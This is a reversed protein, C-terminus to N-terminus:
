VIGSLYVRKSFEDKYALQLQVANEGKSKSGKPATNICDLGLWVSFITQLGRTVRRLDGSTDEQTNLVGVLSPTSILKKTKNVVRLFEQLSDQIRTRPVVTETDRFSKLRLMEVLKAIERSIALDAKKTEQCALKKLRYDLIHDSSRRCMNYAHYLINKHEVDAICDDFLLAQDELTVLRPSALVINNVFLYKTVQARQKRTSASKGYEESSILPLEEFKSPSGQETKQKQPPSYNKRPQRIPSRSPLSTSDVCVAAAAEFFALLSDSNKYFLEGGYYRQNLREHIYAECSRPPKEGCEFIIVEVNPGYTTAYRCWLVYLEGTWYGVKFVALIESTVYYCYAPM